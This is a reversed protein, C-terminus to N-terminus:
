EQLFPVCTLSIGAGPEREQREDWLGTELERRKM